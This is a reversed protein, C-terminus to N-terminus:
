VGILTQLFVPTPVVILVMLALLGLGLFDRGEDLETVDNLAPEDASTIFFLLIAWMMLLPQGSLAVLLVLIRAIRGISAGMAQGYIAHVMHGGDLQGVPTLNFAIILLGVWGAFALPHLQIIQDAGWTSGLVIKSVLTLFLSFRPDINQLTVLVQGEEAAPFPAVTSQSLGILLMLLALSGGVVPGSTALDFLVKRNPVPAKLNVLAGFTGLAFPVPIFYPWSTAVGHRRATVFRSWEHAGIIVLLALAYSFRPILVEPDRLDALTMLPAPISATVLTILTAVALAIALWPSEKAAPDRQASTNPVLAFFPKGALGEQLVLLFREGFHAAVKDAVQTYAAEAETRLNGRCIIAQPRYEVKQVQFVEWPFCGSVQDRSVESIPVHQIPNAADAEATASTVPMPPPPPIKLKGRQLLIISVVYSGVFLALVLLTPPPSAWVTQSLVVVLPPLMIVVWLWQWAVTTVKAVGRELILYTALGLLALLFWHTM